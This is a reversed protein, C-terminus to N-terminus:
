GAAHRQLLLSPMDSHGIFSIPLSLEHSKAQEAELDINGRVWPLKTTTILQELWDLHALVRQTFDM